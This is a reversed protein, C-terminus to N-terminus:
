LDRSRLRKGYNWATYVSVGMRRAAQKPSFGSRILGEYRHLREQAAAAVAARGLDGAHAPFQRPQAPPPGTDPQGARRWRSYCADCWGHRTCGPTLQGGCNSCM